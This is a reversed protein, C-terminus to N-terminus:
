LCYGYPNGTTIRCTQPSFCEGGGPSCVKRCRGTTGGQMVCTFGGICDNYINCTDGEDQIGRCDCFTTSGETWYCGVATSACGSDLVPNCPQAPLACIKHAGSLPGTFCGLGNCDAASRCFRYCRGFSPGCTGPEPICGLGAECDDAALSCVAGVTKSGAPLCTPQDNAITCRGCACGTQCAPNCAEGGSPLDTCVQAPPALCAADPGADPAYCRNDALECHFGEPCVAGQACTFGGSLVNPRFCGVALVLFGIALGLRMTVAHGRGGVPM